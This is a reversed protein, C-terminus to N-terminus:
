HAGRFGGVHESRPSVDGVFGDMSSFISFFPTLRWRLWILSNSRKNLSIKGYGWTYATKEKWVKRGKWSLVVWVVCPRVTAFFTQAMLTCIYLVLRPGHSCFAGKEHGHTSIGRSNLRTHINYVTRLRSPALVTKLFEWARPELAGQRSYYSGITWRFPLWCWPRCINWPETESSLPTPPNRALM